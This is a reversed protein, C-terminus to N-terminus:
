RRGNGFKFQGTAKALLLQTTRADATELRALLRTAPKGKLTKVIRGRAQLQLAGAKTVTYAFPEDALPNEKDPSNNM